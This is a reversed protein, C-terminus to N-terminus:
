RRLEVPALVIREESFVGLGEDEASKLWEARRGIPPLHADKRWQEIQRLATADLAVPDKSAYIRGHPFAYNPNGRPGAAYQAILGDMIHVVVKPGIRENAYLAPIAEAGPGETQLFRRWNDVNPITVNYLAGALGCNPEDGLVPVNIIKTLDRSVITALHSVSSLQDTESARGRPSKRQREQFELDGWILKGMFPENFQANADYGRVPEIGRVAFQDKRTAFGATRLDSADRDWVVIQNAPVGAARLGAAIAEVIGPHTSFYLGGSASIKIGVRDTPAVLSRWAAAVSPKGTLAVILGNVMKATIARNEIFQETAGSDDAFYVVARSVPEARPVLSEEGSLPARCILLGLFAILTRSM